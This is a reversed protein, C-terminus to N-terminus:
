KLWQSNQKYWQAVQPMRTEVDVEPEWGLSKLYDGSINYSFDHGPRDINPDLNEYNLTVGLGDAIINAIQFNDYLKGSSINFKRCKGGTHNAPLPVDKLALIHLLASAVDKAHLYSRSGYNGTKSNYHLQLKKSALLKQISM